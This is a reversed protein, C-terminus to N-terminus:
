MAVILVLTFCTLEMNYNYIHSNLKHAVEATEASINVHTSNTTILLLFIVSVVYVVM